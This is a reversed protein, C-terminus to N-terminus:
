SCPSIRSCLTLRKVAHIQEIWVRASKAHDTLVIVAAYGSLTAMKSDPIAAQPSRVFALVGSEGAPLYGLNFYDTGALYGPGDPASKNIMSNTMLREVLATGNPSTSVFSLTSHHLEFLQGLSPGSIAELEGALAPEYDMVVLVQSYRSHTYPCEGCGRCGSASGCVCAFGTIAFGVNCCARDAIACQDGVEICIPIHVSINCPDM